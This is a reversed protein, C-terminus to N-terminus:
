TLSDLWGAMSMTAVTLVGKRGDFVYLLMM